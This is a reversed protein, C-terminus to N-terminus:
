FLLIDKFGYHKWNLLLAAHLKLAAPELVGSVPTYACVPGDAEWCVAVDAQKIMLM